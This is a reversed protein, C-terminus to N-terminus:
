AHMRLWDALEKVSQLRALPNMADLAEAPHAGYDVALASVGANSAMQLDHTTDGIMLTRAPPVLFESQLEELMQPHPKSHCEDACRTASFYAELGCHKMSRNLGARSKGTAVALHFGVAHLESILEVVGSFLRLEHDRSLFHSRYREIMQPFRDEPLTPVSYRLAEDLGLGIVHSACENSPEPLGLDRCAAQIADVIAGTSDILTGDWDFVLLDFNRGM